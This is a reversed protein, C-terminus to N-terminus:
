FLSLPWFIVRSKTTRSQAKEGESRPTLIPHFSRLMVHVLRMEDINLVCSSLLGHVVRQFFETVKQDSGPTLLSKLAPLTPGVFDIDSTENRLM